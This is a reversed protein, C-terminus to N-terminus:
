IGRPGSLTRPQGLDCLQFAQGTDVGEKLGEQNSNLGRLGAGLKGKDVSVWLCNSPHERRTRQNSTPVGAEWVAEMGKRSAGLGRSPTEGEPLSLSNEWCGQPCAGEESRM